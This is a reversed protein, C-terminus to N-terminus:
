PALRVYADVIQEFAAALFLRADAVSEPPDGPAADAFDRQEPHFQVGIVPWARDRSRFAQALTGCTARGGDQSATEPPCFTSTALLEFRDLPGGGGFASPRVADAHMEPLSQTSARGADGALDAFLPDDPLFDVRARLGSRDGPWSRELDQFPAFGRIPSGTTRELVSDIVCQDCRGDARGSRAELLALIQAGGCFGLFPAVREGVAGVLAGMGGMSADQLPNWTWRRPNARDPASQEGFDWDNSGSLVVIPPPDFASLLQGDLVPDDGEISELAEGAADRVPVDLPDGAPGVRHGFRDDRRLSPLWAALRRQLMGAMFADSGTEGGPLLHTQASPNADVSLIWPAQLVPRTDDARYASLERVVPVGDPGPLGSADTAVTMVLRLARVRRASALTVLRRRVPLVAGDARHIESAIPVFHTGDDSAELAYRLPAWSVVYSRGAGPRPTTRADFGLVLHVRDLLEARPLDVRLTWSGRGRAGAWRRAYTGDVAGSATFGPYAGDDSARAGRLVDRASEIAEVDDLVPPGGNTADVVLRVGCADVDVFWSRRTPQAGSAETPPLSVDTDPVPVGGDRSAAATTAPCTQGDRAALAEWHLKTPVGETPRVGFRARLLGVHVANPFTATWRWPQQGSWGAGITEGRAELADRVTQREPANVLAHMHAARADAPWSAVVAALSLLSVGALFARPPASRSPARRDRRATM